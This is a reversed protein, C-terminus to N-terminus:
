AMAKAMEARFHKLLEKKIRKKIVKRAAKRAREIVGVPERGPHIWRKNKMSRPTAWRFILKGNDLVIPIPRKAKVLWKMQGSKQGDLLPLFAKDIAEVTISRPGLKVRMGQTLRKKAAVSFTEQLISKRIQKLVERKMRKLIREPRFPEFGEVPVLPKYNIRAVFKPAYM